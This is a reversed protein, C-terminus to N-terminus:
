STAAIVFRQLSTSQPTFGEGKICDKAQGNKKWTNVGVCHLGCIRSIEFM